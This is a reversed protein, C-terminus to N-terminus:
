CSSCADVESTARGEVKELCVEWGDVVTWQGPMGACVSDGSGSWGVAEGSPSAM